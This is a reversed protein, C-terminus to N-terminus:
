EKLEKNDVAGELDIFVNNPGTGKLKGRLYIKRNAKYVKNIIIDSKSWGAQMYTIGTLSTGISVFAFDKNSNSGYAITITDGVAYTKNLYRATDNVLTARDQAYSNVFVTLVFFILLAKKM